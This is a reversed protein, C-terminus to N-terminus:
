FYERCSEKVGQHKGAQGSIGLAFEAKDYFPELDEYRFPWDEVTSGAPIRSKEWLAEDCQQRGPFGMPKLRWAQAMYHMTTGGVGNMMAAAARTANSNSNPRTTPAEGSGKAPGFAM